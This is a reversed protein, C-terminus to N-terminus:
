NQYTIAIYRNKVILNVLVGASLLSLKQPEAVKLLGVIKTAGPEEIFLESNVPSYNHPLPMKHGKKCFTDIRKLFKYAIQNYPDLELAYQFNKKSKTFEGVEFCARGLRNLADTNKPDVELIQQNLKIAEEWNSSLAADIAQKLLDSPNEDM